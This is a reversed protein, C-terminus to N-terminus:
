MNFKIFASNLAPFRKPIKMISKIKFNLRRYEERYYNIADVKPRLFPILIWVFLGKPLTILECKSKNLYAEWM